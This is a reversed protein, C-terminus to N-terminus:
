PTGCVAKGGNGVSTIGNVINGEFGCNVYHDQNAKFTLPPAM